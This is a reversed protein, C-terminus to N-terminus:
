STETNYNYECTADEDFEVSGSLGSSPDVRCKSDPETGNTAPSTEIMPILQCLDRSAEVNHNLEVKLTEALNNYLNIWIKDDYQVIRQQLAFIVEFFKNHYDKENMLDYFYKTVCATDEDTIGEPCGVWENLLGIVQDIETFGCINAANKNAAQLNSSRQLCSKIDGVKPVDKSTSPKDPKINDFKPRTAGRILFNDMTKQQKGQSETNTSNNSPKKTNRHGTNKSSTSANTAHTLATTRSSNSSSDEIQRVNGDTIQLTRADHDELLLYDQYPLICKAKISDTIWEPKVVRDDPRLTKIRAMSLNTAIMFKTTQYRYYPHYDGGNLLILRKLEDATPQTRGNVNISIGKFLETRLPNNRSRLAERIQENQEALKAKKARMYGRGDDYGNTRDLKTLGTRDGM